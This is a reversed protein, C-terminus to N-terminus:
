LREFKIGFHRFGGLLQETDPQRGPVAATTLLEPVVAAYFAVPKETGV